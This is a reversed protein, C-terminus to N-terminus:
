LVASMGYTPTWTSLAMGGICFEVSHTGASVTQAGAASTYFGGSTRSYQYNKALVSGNLYLTAVLQSGEAIAIGDVTLHALFLSSAAFQISKWYCYTTVGGPTGVLSFSSWSGTEKFAVSM